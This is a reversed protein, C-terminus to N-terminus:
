AVTVPATAVEELYLTFEAYRSSSNGELISLDRIDVIAM